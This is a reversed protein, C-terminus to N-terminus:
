SAPPKARGAVFSKFSGKLVGGAAKLADKAQGSEVWAAADGGAEKLENLVEKGVGGLTKLGRTIDSGAQKLQDKKKAM